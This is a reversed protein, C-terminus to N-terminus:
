AWARSRWPRHWCLLFRFTATEGPALVRRLAVSGITFPSQHMAAERADAGQATEDKALRGDRSFRNWFDQAGDWWAGEEWHELCEYRAGEDVEAALGLALYDPAREDAAESALLPGRGAAPALPPNHAGPGFLAKGFADEGRHHMLNAMSAAISVVRPVEDRNHVRYSFQALPLGSRDADLPIFPTVAELAIDLPLRPDAFAIHAFPYRASLTAHRLRPAGALAWAHLGHSHNFPPQREAELVCTFSAQGQGEPASHLAFFSYPPTWGKNPANWLEFDRLEGRSGLGINGTGIGGLLFCAETDTERYHRVGDQIFM